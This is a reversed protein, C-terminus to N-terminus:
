PRTDLQRHASRTTLSVVPGPPDVAFRRISDAETYSGAKLRLFLIHTDGTAFHARVGGANSLRVTFGGPAGEAPPTFEAISRTGTVPKTGTTFVLSSRTRAVDFDEIGHLDNAVFAADQSTFLIEPPTSVDNNVDLTAQVMAQGGTQELIFAFRDAATWRVQTVAWGGSLGATWLLKSGGGAVSSLHIASPVTGHEGPTYKVYVLASGDPSFDPAMAGQYPAGIADVTTVGLVSISTALLRFRVVKLVGAEVFAVRRLSPDLPDVPAMDIGGLRVKSAKYVVFRSSGDANAVYLSDDKGAFNTYAIQPDVAAQALSSAAALAVALLAISRRM